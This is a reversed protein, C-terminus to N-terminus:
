CGYKQRLANAGRQIDLIVDKDCPSSSLASEILPDFGDLIRLIDERRELADYAMLLTDLVFIDKCQEVPCEGELAKLHKEFEDTIQKYNREFKTGTVLKKIEMSYYLLNNDLNVHETKYESATRTLEYASKLLGLKEDNVQEIRNAKKWLYYGYLKSLHVKMHDYDAKPLVDSFKCGKREFDSFLDKAEQFKSIAEDGNGLKGYTQALRMKVLPFDDYKQELSEYIDQAIKACDVQNTSLLCLAENMKTYYFFLYDKRNDAVIEDANYNKAIERFKEAAQLLLSLGRGRQVDEENQAKIRFERAEVYSAVYHSDVRLEKFTDIIEQDAAVSVIRAKDAVDGDGKTAEHHIVDAYEACADSFQKMVKLHSLVSKANSVPTGAEKGTRIVYGYKHDIEGWADEFVTRIQVEVPIYYDKDGESLKEVVKNLRTVLHISSYSEKSLRTVLKKRIKKRKVIKKLEILIQDNPNTYYVIIEDIRKKLFPNPNLPSTHDVIDIMAEFVLPMESRLLTVFRIGIVDTIDQLRYHPKEKRKRETKELLKSEPKVRSKHAYCHKFIGSQQLAAIMEAEAAHGDRDLLLEYYTIDKM